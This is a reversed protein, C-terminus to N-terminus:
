ELFKGQNIRPIPQTAANCYADGWEPSNRRRQAEPLAYTSAPGTQDLPVTKAPRRLLRRTLMRQWWPPSPQDGEERHQAM